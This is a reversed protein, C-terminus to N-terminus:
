DGIGAWERAYQENLVRVKLKYVNIAECANKYEVEAKHYEVMRPVVSALGKVVMPILTAAWAKAKLDYVAEAKATYYDAEAEVMACGRRKAESLAKDLMGVAEQLELWLSQGSM